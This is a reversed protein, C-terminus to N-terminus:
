QAFVAQEGTESNKPQGIRGSRVAPKNRSPTVDFYIFETSKEMVRRDALEVGQMGASQPYGEIEWIICIHM